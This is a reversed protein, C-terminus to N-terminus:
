NNVISYEGFQMSLQKCVRSRGVHLNYLWKYSFDLGLHQGTSWDLCERCTAGVLWVGAVKLECVPEKAPERCFM